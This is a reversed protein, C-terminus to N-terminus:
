RTTWVKPTPYFYNCFKIKKVNNPLNQKSKFGIEEVKVTLQINEKSMLLRVTCCTDLLLMTYHDEFGLGQKIICAENGM